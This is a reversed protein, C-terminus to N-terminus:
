TVAIDICMRRNAWLSIIVNTMPIYAIRWLLILSTQEISYPWFYTLLTAWPYLSYIRSVRFSHAINSM